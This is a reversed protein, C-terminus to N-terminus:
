RTAPKGAGTWAIMGGAMSKPAEHGASELIDVATLSRRGSRCVTYIPRDKPLSGARFQLEGLPIHTAERIHGDRWEDSERVDIILHDKAKIAADVDEVSVEKAANGAGFLTKFFDM